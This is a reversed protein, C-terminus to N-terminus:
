GPKLLTKTPNQESDMFCSNIMMLHM